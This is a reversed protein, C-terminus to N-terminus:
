EMEIRPIDSDAIHELTENFQNVAWRVKELVGPREALRARRLADELGHRAQSLGIEDVTGAWHDTPLSNESQIDARDWFHNFM